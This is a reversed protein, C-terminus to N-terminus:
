SDRPGVRVSLQAPSTGMEHNGIHSNQSWVKQSSREWSIHLISFSWKSVWVVWRLVSGTRPSEWSHDPVTWLKQKLWFRFNQFNMNEFKHTEINIEYNQNELAGIELNICFRLICWRCNNEILISSTHEFKWGSQLMDAVTGGMESGVKSELRSVRNLPYLGIWRHQSVVKIFLYAVVKM